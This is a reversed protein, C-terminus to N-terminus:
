RLRLKMNDKMTFTTETLITGGKVKKPLLRMTNVHDPDMGHSEYLDRLWGSAIRFDTHGFERGTECIATPEDLIEVWMGEPVGADNRRQPMGACAFAIIDDMCKPPYSAFEIYRKVGGEIMVSPHGEDKWLGLETDSLLDGVMDPTGKFKCSDTDCHIVNPCGVQLVVDCLRRRAHSTIFMAMPLYANHENMADAFEKLVTDNLDEDFVFGANTINPNLGFRGYSSNMMRKADDRELSGKPATKKVQYWHEIYEKTLGVASEFGAYEASGPKMEIDYFRRYNDLDINTFTLRHWSECHELPDSTAIGELDADMHRTFKYVPIMGPKVNLKFDAKVVWLPYRDSPGEIAIPLGFPLEDFM